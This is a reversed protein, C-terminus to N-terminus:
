VAVNIEFTLRMKSMEQEFLHYILELFVPYNNIESEFHSLMLQPQMFPKALGPVEFFSIGINELTDNSTALKYM